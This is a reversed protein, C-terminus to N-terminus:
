FYKRTQERGKIVFYSLLNNASIWFVLWDIYRPKYVNNSDICNLTEANQFNHYLFCILNELRKKIITYNLNRCCLQEIKWRLTIKKLPTGFHKSKNYITTVSCQRGSYKIKCSLKCVVYILNSYIYWYIQVHLKLTFFICSSFNFQFHFRELPYGYNFTQFFLLVM